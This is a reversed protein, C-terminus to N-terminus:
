LISIHQSFTCDVHKVSPLLQFITSKPNSNQFRLLIRTRSHGVLPFPIEGGELCLLEFQISFHTRFGCTYLLLIYSPAMLFDVAYENCEERGYNANQSLYLRRSSSTNMRKIDFNEGGKRV